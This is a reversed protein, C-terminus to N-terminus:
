LNVREMWERKRFQTPSEKMMRTFLITFYNSNEYGLLQAIESVKMKTQVLMQKAEAMRRNLIYNIPSDNYKRHFVHSIYYPNMHFADAIESLSIHRLYNLDLFEKIRIALSEADRDSNKSNDLESLRRIWIMLTMLLYESAENYQEKQLQSEDYILTFLSQIADRYEKTKILPRHESPILYPRESHSIGCYYTELPNTLSSYEEHVIGQNYILLDGEQIAYREGGITVVGEGKVVFILESFNSHQHCPFSWNPREIIRGIYILKENM